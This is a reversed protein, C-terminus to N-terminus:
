IAMVEVDNIGYEAAYMAAETASDFRTADDTKATWGRVPYAPHFDKLYEAGFKNGLRMLVYRTPGRTEATKEMM